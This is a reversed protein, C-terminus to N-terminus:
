FLKEIKTTTCYQKMNMSASIHREKTQNESLFTPEITPSRSTISARVAFSVISTNTGLNSIGSPQWIKRETM